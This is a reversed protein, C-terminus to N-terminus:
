IAGGVEELEFCPQMYGVIDGRCNRVPREIALERRSAMDPTLLDLAALAQMVASPLARAGGDEIKIAMGIGKGPIGLCFLGEAGGKAFVKGRAGLMLNTGFDGSGGVMQPNEMMAGTVRRAPQIYEEPLSEPHAMRAYAQAMNVLPMGFVVVGCGDVGRVVEERPLGAVSSVAQWMDQQVRSDPSVYNDIPYGKHVAYLLMGAHKGSCNNFVPTFPEGSRVRGVAQSSTASAREPSSLCSPTHTGCMLASEALGIKGLISTVAEVHIDEGWHSAAMVALESQTIGFRDVAGSAVIPLAQIPKASSRLYTICTPDGAKALLRGNADVVAIHGRHVSEVLDGRLLSVLAQSMSHM